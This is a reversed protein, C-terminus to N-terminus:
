KKMLLMRPKKLSIIASDTSLSFSSSPFNTWESFSLAKLPTRSCACFKIWLSRKDKPTNKSDSVFRLRKTPWKPSINGNNSPNLQGTKLGSFSQTKRLYVNSTHVSYPLLVTCLMPWYQSPHTLGATHICYQFHCFCHILSTIFGFAELFEFCGNSIEWTDWAHSPFSPLLQWINVMLYFIVLVNSGLHICPRAVKDSHWIEWNM